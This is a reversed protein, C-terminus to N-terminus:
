VITNGVLDGDAVHFGCSGKAILHSEHVFFVDVVEGHDVGASREPSVDVLKKAIM